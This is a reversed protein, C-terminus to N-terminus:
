FGVRLVALGGSDAKSLFRANPLYSHTLDAAAAGIQGTANDITVDDTIDVAGDAVIFIDGRWMAAAPVGDKYSDEDRGDRTIDKVSIGGLNIAAFIEKVPVIRVWDTGRYQYTDGAAVAADATAGDYQTHNAVSAVAQTYQIIDGQELTTTPDADVAIVANQAGLKLRPEDNVSEVYTGKGFSIGNTEDVIYTDIDCTQMDAVQGERGIALREAYSSQVVAM